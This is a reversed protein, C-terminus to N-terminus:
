QAGSENSSSSSSSSHRAVRSRSGRVRSSSSSGSRGAAAGDAAGDVGDVGGVADGATGPSVAAARSARPAPLLGLGLPPPRWPMLAMDSPALGLDGVLLVGRAAQGPGSQEASLKDVHQMPPLGMLQTINLHIGVTFMHSQQQLGAPNTAGSRQQQRQHQTAPPLALPHHSSFGPPPPATAAVVNLALRLAVEGENEQLCYSPLFLAAAPLCTVPLLVALAAMSMLCRLTNFCMVCWLVACCLM